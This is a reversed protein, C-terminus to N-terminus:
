QNPHSEHPYRSPMGPLLGAGARGRDPLRVVAVGREPLPLLRVVLVARGRAEARAVAVSTTLRFGAPPPPKTLLM